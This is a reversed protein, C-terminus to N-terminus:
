VKHDLATSVTGPVEGSTLYSVTEQAASICYLGNSLTDYQILINLVSM